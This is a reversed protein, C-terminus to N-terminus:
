DKSLAHPQRQWSRAEKRENLLLVGLWNALLFASIERGEQSESASFHALVLGPIGNLSCM